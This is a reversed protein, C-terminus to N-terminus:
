SGFLRRLPGTRRGREEELRVVTERLAENRRDLERVQRELAQVRPDDDSGRRAAKRRLQRNEVRLTEVESRLRRLEEGADPSPPGTKTPTARAEPAHSADDIVGIADELEVTERGEAPAPAAHAGAQRRADITRRVRERLNKDGLPQPLILDAGAAEAQRREEATLAGDERPPAVLVVPMPALRTVKRVKRCVEFGPMDPLDSALIVVDPTHHRLHELAERASTVTAVQMADPALLVDVLQRQRPDPHAVLATETPM